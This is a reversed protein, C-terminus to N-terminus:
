KKGGGNKRRGRPCLRCRQFGNVVTKSVNKQTFAHNGRNIASKVQERSLSGFIPEEKCGKPLDAVTLGNRQTNKNLRLWYCADMPMALLRTLEAACAAKVDADNCDVSHKQGRNVDDSHDAFYCRVFGEVEPATTDQRVTVNQTLRAAVLKRTNNKLGSTDRLKSRVGEFALGALVPEETYPVPLDEPLPVQSRELETTAQVKRVWFHGNTALVAEALDLFEDANSVVRDEDAGLRATRNGKNAGLVLEDHGDQLLKRIESDQPFEDKLSKWRFSINKSDNDQSFEEHIKLIATDLDIGGHAESAGVRSM